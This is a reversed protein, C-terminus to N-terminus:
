NNIILIFGSPVQKIDSTKLKSAKFNIPTLDSQRNKDILVLSHREKSIPMVSKNYHSSITRERYHSMQKPRPFSNTLERYNTM